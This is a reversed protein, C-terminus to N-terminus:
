NVRPLRENVDRLSGSGRRYCKKVISQLGQTTDARFLLCAWRKESRGHMV